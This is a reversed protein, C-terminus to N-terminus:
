MVHSLRGIPAPSAKEALFTRIDHHFLELGMWIPSRQVMVVRTFRHSRFDAVDSLGMEVMGLKPPETYDSKSEFL